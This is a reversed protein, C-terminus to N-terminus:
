GCSLFSIGTKSTSKTVPGLDELNVGTSQQALLPTVVALKDM